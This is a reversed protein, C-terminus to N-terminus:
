TESTDGSPHHIPGKKKTQWPDLLTVHDSCALLPSSFCFHFRRQCHCVTNAMAWLRHTIGLVFTEQKEEGM